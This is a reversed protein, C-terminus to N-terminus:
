VPAGTNRGFAAPPHAERRFTCAAGNGYRLAGLGDRFSRLRVGELRLCLREVVLRCTVAQDIKAGDLCVEPDGGSRKAGRDPAVLERGDPGITVHAHSSAINDGVEIRSANAWSSRARGLNRGVGGSKSAGGLAAIHFYEKTDLNAYVICEGMPGRQALVSTAEATPSIM